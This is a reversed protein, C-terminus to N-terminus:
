QQMGRARTGEALGQSRGSTVAWVLDREGRPVKVKNKKILNCYAAAFVAVAAAVVISSASLTGFNDVRAKNNTKNKIGHRLLIGCSMIVRVKRFCKAAM